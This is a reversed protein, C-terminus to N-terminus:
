KQLVVAAELLIERKYERSYVRDFERVREAVWGPLQDLSTNPGGIRLIMNVQLEFLDDASRLPIFQVNRFGAAEAHHEFYSRTFMWKDDLHTFGVSKDEGRRELLAAVRAAWFRTLDSPLAAARPDALITRYILAETATGDEFPELFVAAGGPRLVRGCGLLTLDPRFLHHLIAWGLVLDISAPAFDLEEANLQLLECQDAASHGTVLARCLALMEASLDSAILRGEPNAALLDLLPVITNGAGSGLDLITFPGRAPLKIGAHAFIAPLVARTHSLNQHTQVYEEARQGFQATLYRGVVERGYGPSWVGHLQSHVSGLDHLPKQYVTALM